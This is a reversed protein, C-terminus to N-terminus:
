QTQDSQGSQDSEAIQEGNLTFEALRFGLRAFQARLEQLLRYGDGKEYRADRLWMKLGGNSAMVHANQTQWNVTAPRRVPPWTHGHSDQPAGAVPVQQLVRPGSGIASRSETALSTIAAARPALRADQGDGNPAAGADPGAHATQSFDAANGQRAPQQASRQQVKAPEGAQRRGPDPQYRLRQQWQASELQELWATHNSSSTKPGLTVAEKNIVTIESM